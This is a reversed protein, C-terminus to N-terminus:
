IRKRRESKRLRKVGVYVVYLVFTNYRNGANKDMRISRKGETEKEGSSCCEQWNNEGAIYTITNGSVFVHLFISIFFLVFNSAAIREAQM